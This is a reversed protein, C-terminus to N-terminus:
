SSSVSDPSGGSSASGGGSLEDYSSPRRGLLRAVAARPEGKHELPPALQRLAEVTEPDLHGNLEYRGTASHYVIRGAKLESSIMAAFTEENGGSRRGAREWLEHFTLGHARQRARYRHCAAREAARLTEPDRARRARKREVAERIQQERWAPDRASRRAYSAEAV